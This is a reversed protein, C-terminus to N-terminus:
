RNIMFHKRGVDNDVLQRRNRPNKHKLYFIKQNVNNLIEKNDVGITIVYFHDTDATFVIALDANDINDVCKYQPFNRLIKKIGNETRKEYVSM